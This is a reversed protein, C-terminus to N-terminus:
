FLDDANVAKKSYEVPEQYFFDTNGNGMVRVDFWQTKDVLESVEFIEKYGIQKLSINLRNKVYEKLIAASLFEKNIGNVMWDIIQSEAEFAEAAEHLIREELEEDFLEPCEERITNILKIGVDAHITEEKATYLTQQNTDKLRNKRGFWAIVYFQSFLSVNEVFLTFLILSYIFQKKSDKYYRHTYKKLYNVRGKIWDLELNSAFVDDLNLKELLREYADNHIVEVHAMVYGLDRISPHPLNDGLKAWFTKVAIEIQAIASLTRVIIEQEQETLNTKFDQIDSSYDFKQESTWFGDWMARMFAKTWPYKDPKRSTQEDFITLTEPGALEHKSSPM